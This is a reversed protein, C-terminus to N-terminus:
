GVSTEQCISDIVESCAVAIGLQLPSYGVDVDLSGVCSQAKRYKKKKKEYESSQSFTALIM